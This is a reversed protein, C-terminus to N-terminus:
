CFMMFELVLDGRYFTPRMGLSQKLSIDLILSLILLSEEFNSYLTM